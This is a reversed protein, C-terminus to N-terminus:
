LEVVLAPQFNGTVEGPYGRPNCIVRTSGLKYDQCQHIHGHIWVAAGSTAVLEDLNSAFGASVIDRDFRAPVSKRSPAHHTIIVRKERNLLNQQKLWEVSQAHLAATNRARLKGDGLSVRIRQYDSLAREVVMATITPDGGFLKFDTWLTCGWFAVDDFVVVDNELVHVNTGQAAAKLEAVLKPLTYGYYEHNGLIYLVPTHPFTAAAWQVGKAGPYTDGALIVVDAGTPQPQFDAFELHLDSLIHLKM